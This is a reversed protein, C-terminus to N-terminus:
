IEDFRARLKKLADNDLSHLYKDGHKMVVVDDKSIVALYPHPVFFQPKKYKTTIQEEETFNDGREKSTAYGLVLYSHTQPDQIVLLHKQQAVNIVEGESNKPLIINLILPIRFIKM